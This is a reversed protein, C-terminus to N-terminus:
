ELHGAAPQSMGVLRKLNRARFLRAAVSSNLFYSPKARLVRMWTRLAGKRDGADLQMLSKQALGAAYDSNVARILGRASKGYRERVLRIFITRGTAYKEARVAFHAVRYIVLPEAVYEFEGLERARLWIYPDEFGPRRFEECFGGCRAFTSRRMLVASIFIEWGRSLLDDMRPARGAPPLEIKEDKGGAATVDSFALVAGPNRDLAASTRALYEPMWTDDADLFTLYEGGSSVPVGANRAAAPGRNPQDVIKIKSGYRGLVDRTSDTSGDNVVIVEMEGDFRQALASDIAASITAEGNYVPIIVSVSKM